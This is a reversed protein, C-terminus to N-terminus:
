VSFADLYSRLLDEGQAAHWASLLAEGMPDCAVRLPADDDLIAAVIAEAAARVPTVDGLTGARAAGILEALQRYPEFAVAEPTPQSAALMDTDIAGPMVEVVRIGQGAVEAQLSEGYASVAAKSARYMGFFPMPVLLSSSTINCVVGGGSARLVPLARRTVEVLGFLNTEFM